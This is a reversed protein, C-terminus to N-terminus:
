EIGFSKDNVRRMVEHAAAAQLTELDYAEGSQKILKAELAPAYALCQRDIRGFSQVSISLCALTLNDFRELALLMAAALLNRDNM